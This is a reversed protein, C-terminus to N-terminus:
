RKDLLIRSLNRSTVFLPTIGAAASWGCGGAVLRGAAAVLRLRGAV